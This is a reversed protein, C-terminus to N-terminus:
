FGHVCVRPLCLACLPCLSVFSLRSLFLRPVKKRAEANKEKDAMQKLFAERRSKIREEQRNCSVAHISPLVFCM